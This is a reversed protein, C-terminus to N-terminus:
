LLATRARRPKMQARVDESLFYFILHYARGPRYGERARVKEFALLADDEGLSGRRTRMGPPRFGLLIFGRAVM